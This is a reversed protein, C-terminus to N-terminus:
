YSCNNVLTYNSTGSKCIQITGNRVSSDQSINSYELGTSGNLILDFPYIWQFVEESQIINLTKLPVSDLTVHQCTTELRAEWGAFVTTTGHFDKFKYRFSVKNRDLVQIPFDPKAFYSVNETIYSINEAIYIDGVTEYADGAFGFDLYNPNDTGFLEPWSLGEM